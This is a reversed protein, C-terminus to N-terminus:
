GRGRCPLSPFLLPPARFRPRMQYQYPGHSDIFGSWPRSDASLGGAAMDGVYQVAGDAPYVRGAPAGVERGSSLRHDLCPAVNSVSVVRTSDMELRSSEGCLPTMVANHSTLKWTDSSATRPSISREPAPFDVAKRVTLRRARGSLPLTSISPSSKSVFLGFSNRSARGRIPIIEWCRLRSALRVTAPFTASGSSTAPQFGM